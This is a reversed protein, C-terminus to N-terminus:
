DSPLRDILPQFYSQFRATMPADISISAVRNSDPILTEGGQIEAAATL